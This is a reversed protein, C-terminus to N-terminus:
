RKKNLFSLSKLLLPYSHTGCKKPLITSRLTIELRIFSSVEPQACKFSSSFLKGITMSNKSNWSLYTLRFNFLTIKEIIQTTFLLHKKTVGMLSGWSALSDWYTLINKHGSRTLIKHGLFSYQKSWAWRFIPWTTVPSTM